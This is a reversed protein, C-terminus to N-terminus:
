SHGGHLCCGLSASQSAEVETLHACVVPSAVSYVTLRAVGPGAGGVACLDRGGVTSLRAVQVHIFHDNICVFTHM